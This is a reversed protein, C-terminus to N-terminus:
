LKEFLRVTGDLRGFDQKGGGAGFEGHATNVIRHEVGSFRQEMLSVQLEAFMARYMSGVTLLEGLGPQEIGLEMAPEEVGEIHAQLLVVVRLSQQATLM